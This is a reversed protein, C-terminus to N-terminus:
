EGCCGKLVRLANMTIWKSPKGKKEINTIVKGNYSNEMKWKGEPDQKSLVIDIADRMRQDRCNLRGLIVLIELIDSQYMLPFGLRLWGPKSVSDLDHSKRYIHHLLFYEVGQNITMVTAASRMGAPIEALAKLTKVAGLHCTHKGWCMQYRDYPWGKPGSNDGDDFRQYTNIWNIGKQVREDILHGLRILSWVMNGTLCPIVYSALGGGAKESRYASFGGSLTEQSHELVFECARAIQPDNGDAGLEALIMLQWVTGKYKDTYFRKPDGWYGEPHQHSLIEPVVGTKMIGTRAKKVEASSAPEELIATLTFYRVSPNDPELLWGTPDSNLFSKWSSM